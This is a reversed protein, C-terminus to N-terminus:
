DLDVNVYPDIARVRANAGGGTGAPGDNDCEPEGPVHINDCPDPPPNEFWYDIHKQYRMTPAKSRLMGINEDSRTALDSTNSSGNFSLYTSRDKGLVGNITLVKIHFYNDFDGDGDFDQVLHRMPVPGRGSKARLVQRVAKGMVTYVIRVDCGSNWLKKLRRAAVMGREGRIVDPASRVVTRGRSNGARVAGRCRVQNLADQVPDSRFERGAYPSFMMAARRGGFTAYPAAAPKDRWMEDFTSEAFRYMGKNGVFTFLENWQNIASAITLNASGQMFVHRSAGTHSFLFFKAHAAGAKGRCSGACTRAYSRRAPRKKGNGARLGRQLQLFTPNPTDKDVNSADMLLRVVVGRRQAQLLANKGEMTMFNWTMIKVKSGRRAHRIAGLMKEFIRRKTASSGVPSNFTIGPTVRYPTARRQEEVVPSAVVPSAVAPAATGVADAPMATVALLGCLLPV